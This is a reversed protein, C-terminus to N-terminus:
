LSNLSENPPLVLVILETYKLVVTVCKAFTDPIFMTESSKNSRFITVIEVISAFLQSFPVEPVM